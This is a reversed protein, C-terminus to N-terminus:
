FLGDSYFLEYNLLLARTSAYFESDLLDRIKEMYIEYYSVKIHFEVNEEM